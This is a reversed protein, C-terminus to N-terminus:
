LSLPLLHSTLDPIHPPPVSRPPSASGVRSTHINKHLGLIDDLNVKWLLGAIEQEYRWNRCDDFMMPILLSSSELFWTM